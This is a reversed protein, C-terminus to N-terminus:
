GPLRPDDNPDVTLHIEVDARIPAKFRRLIIERLMNEVTPAFKQLEQELDLWLALRQERTMDAWGVVEEDDKSSM